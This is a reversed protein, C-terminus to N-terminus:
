ALAAMLASLEASRNWVSFSVRVAGTEMTGAWTHALPACHLGARVAIDRRSLKEATQESPVGRECFSVVPVFHEDDPEPTYLAIRPNRSLARHLARALQMESRFISAVGRQQVFRIGAGLGIIGPTNPTGSELRDPYEEPQEPSASRSGTGGEILPDLRTGNAILLGTGMPGYLGKHGACCLYDIPTQSLDIPVVGASQAADVLIEIGRDHALQTLQEVPLRVGWVNSAQMCVILRTNAKICSAFAELTRADDGPFVRAVTYTIGSRALATIPRYVANHEMCSIVAHDGPRLRGKLAMNVAQTCGSTFIVNEVAPAHFFDAATQRAHFVAEATRMALRHGSRGPNAGCRVLADAMARRVSEPKPYTTASNDFYILPSAEM